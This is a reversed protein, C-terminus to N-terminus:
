HLALVTAQQAPLPLALLSYAPQTTTLVATMLNGARRMVTVVGSVLTIKVLAACSQPVQVAQLVFLVVMYFFFLVTGIELQLKM